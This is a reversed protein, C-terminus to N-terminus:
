VCIFKIYKYDSLGIIFYWGGSPGSDGSGGGAVIGCAMNTAIDM